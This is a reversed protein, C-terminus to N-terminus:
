KTIGTNSSGLRTYAKTSKNSYNGTKGVSMDEEEDEQVTKSFRGSKAFKPAEVSFSSDEESDVVKYNKSKLDDEEEFPQKLVNEIIKCAKVRKLPPEEPEKYEFKLIKQKNQKRLANRDKNEDDFLKKLKKKREKTAKKEEKATILQKNKKKLLMGLVKSTVTGLVSIIEVAIAIIIAIFLVNELNQGMKSEAFEDSNNFAFITL